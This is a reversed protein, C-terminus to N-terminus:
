RIKRAATANEISQPMKSERPTSNKHYLFYQCNKFPLAPTFLCSFSLLILHALGDNGGRQAFADVYCTNHIEEPQRFGG